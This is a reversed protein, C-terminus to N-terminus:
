NLKQDIIKVISAFDTMIEIEEPEISINFTEELAVVLSLHKLSDWNDIDDQSFNNGSVKVEFLNEMITRVKSENM